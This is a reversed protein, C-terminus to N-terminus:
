FQLTRPDSLNSVTGQNNPLSPFVHYLVSGNYSKDKCCHPCTIVEDKEGRQQLREGHTCGAYVAIKIALYEAIGWGTM